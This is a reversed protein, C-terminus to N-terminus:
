LSGVEAQGLPATGNGKGTIGAQLPCDTPLGSNLLRFNGALETM